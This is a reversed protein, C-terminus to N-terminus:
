RFPVAPHGTPLTEEKGYTDQGLQEFALKKIKEFIAEFLADQYEIPTDTMELSGFREVRKTVLKIMFVPDNVAFRRKTTWLSNELIEPSIGVPDCDAVVADKGIEVAPDGESPPIIGVVVALFGHIERRILEDSPKKEMYQRIAKYSYAM